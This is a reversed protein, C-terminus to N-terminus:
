SRVKSGPPCEGNSQPPVYHMPDCSCRSTRSGPAVAVCNGTTCEGGHSCLEGPKKYNECSLSVPEAARGFFL